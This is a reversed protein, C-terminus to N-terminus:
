PHSLSLRHRRLREPITTIVARWYAVDSWLSEWFDFRLLRFQRLRGQLVRRLISQHQRPAYHGFNGGSMVERLLWQGRRPDPPCLMHTTDLHLVHALLWMLAAATHHLGFPRLLPTVQQRDRDTAHRLLFYYDCLQRLGIGGSLFHRQIHSLQMVLAFPITPVCFGEPVPTSRTIERELWRQLRRNTFPNHNGSSPRFHVEVVIGDATPPLHIHHYSTTAKGHKGANAITPLQDLLGLTILLQSVSDKGGEVWLDIDGPQRSLKDPYLLANAQGKLIATHRGADAFLRTLRSAERNQLANAGRIAEADTMWQMALPLPLQLHSVAHYIVGTLAQQRSLDYLAHWDPNGLTVPADSATMASRLLTFFTTYLHQM